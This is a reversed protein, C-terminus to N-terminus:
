LKSKYNLETNKIEFVLVSGNKLEISKPDIKALELACKITGEHCFAAVNEFPQKSLIEVFTKVRALHMSHNEGNCFTFDHVAKDNVYQEGYLRFCEEASKGSLTGVSIERLLECKEAIIGPLAFEATQLARLLDSSYVKDFSIGKLHEGATKADEIGKITLPIQAWGAHLKKENATSEGHRIMYLLM